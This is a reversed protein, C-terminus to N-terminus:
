CLNKAAVQERLNKPLNKPKIYGREVLVGIATIRFGSQLDRDCQANYKIAWERYQEMNELVPNEPVRAVGEGGRTFATEPRTFKRKGSMVFAGAEPSNGLPIVLSYRSELLVESM